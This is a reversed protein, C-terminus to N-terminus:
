SAELSTTNRGNAYNELDHLYYFITRGAKVVPPGKQEMAWKAMTNVKVGLYLAADKRRLRWGNPSPLPQLLMDKVVIVPPRALAAEVEDM